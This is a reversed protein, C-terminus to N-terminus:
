TPAVLARRMLTTAADVLATRDIEEGQVIMEELLGHMAHNLLGATLWPDAVDFLGAAVGVRIGTAVMEHLRRNADAMLDTADGSATIRLMKVIDRHAIDYDILAEVMEDALAVLDESGVRNFIGGALALMGEVHRERLAAVLHEKTSFYNYFSGKAVGATKAIDAVTAEDVGGRRFVEVAADLLAARRQAFEEPTSARRPVPVAYSASPMPNHWM